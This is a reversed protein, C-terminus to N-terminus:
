CAQRPGLTPRKSENAQRALQLIRKTAADVPLRLLARAGCWKWEIGNHSSPTSFPMLAATKWATLTIRSTTISHHITAIPQLLRLSLRLKEAFKREIRKQSERPNTEVFPLRWLDALLKTNRSRCLLIAEDNRVIAAVQAVKRAAARKGLNPLHNQANQKFAVCSRRLPCMECRPNRPLCILAGLEMLAENFEGVQKQPLLTEALTWLHKRTAPLRANQRIGHHRCLVRTVNGDLVPARTGFAISCIAGATYRGIGPLALVAAFDRPFKGDHRTAVLKAAAHLNKARSYYGLGEWAKLVRPYPAAALSPIDPFQRLWRNYYPIVTQVQTQQLMIESIWIRYPNRTRRWPLNRKHQRFWARLSSHPFPLSAPNFAVHSVFAPRRTM